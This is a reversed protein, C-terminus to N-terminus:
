RAGFRRVIWSALAHEAECLEDTRSGLHAPDRPLHGRAMRAGIRLTFAPDRPEFGVPECRSMARIRALLRDLERRAARGLVVRRTRTCIRSASTTCGEIAGARVTVVVFRDAQGPVGIDARIEPRAQAAAPAACLLVALAISPRM